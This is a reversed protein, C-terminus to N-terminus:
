NVVKGFILCRYRKPFIENKARWIDSILAETHSYLFPVIISYRAVGNPCVPSSISALLPLHCVLCLVFWGREHQHPTLNLMFMISSVDNSICAMVELGYMCNTDM